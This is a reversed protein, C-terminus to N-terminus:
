STDERVASLYQRVQRPSVYTGPEGDARVPKAVTVRSVRESDPDVRVATDLLILSDPRLRYIESVVVPSHSTLIVQRLPRDLSDPDDLDTVRELIRRLLEALRSPHLGNEIEEIMLVGAHDPDHLAALLGLIRLTGDSLLTSPVPGQGDIVLEFSWEKRKEDLEPVIEVLDPILAALDVTLDSFAESGRMRGLVAALNAGDRAMPRLDAASALQRMARPDPVYGREDGMASQIRTFLERDFEGNSENWAADIESSLRDRVAQTLQGEDDVGSVNFSYTGNIPHGDEPLEVESSRIVKVLGEPLHVLRHVTISIENVPRGKAVQHFLEHPRGRRSKLLATQMDPIGIDNFEVADFLNSKGSSNPGVLALFPPVDLEFDLFSKFGDIEIRTIM